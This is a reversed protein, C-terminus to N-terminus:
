EREQSRRWREVRLAAADRNIGLGRLWRYYRMEQRRMVEAHRWRPDSAGVIDTRSSSDDDKDQHM